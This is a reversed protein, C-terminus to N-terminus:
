AREKKKLKLKEKQALTDLAKTLDFDSKSKRHLYQQIALGFLTSQLLIVEPDKPNAGLLTAILDREEISLKSMNKLLEDNDDSEVLLGLLARTRQSDQLIDKVIKMVFSEPDQERGGENKRVLDWIPQIAREAVALVLDSRKPFHYTLNGQSVEASKAVQLQGLGKLGSQRLLQVACKLIKEKADLKVKKM